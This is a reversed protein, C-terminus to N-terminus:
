GTTWKHYPYGPPVTRPRLQDIIDTFTLGQAQLGLIEQLLDLPVSPSPLVASVTGDALGLILPSLSTSECCFLQTSYV